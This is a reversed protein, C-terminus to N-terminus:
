VRVIGSECAYGTTNGTTADSPKVGLQYPYNAGTIIRVIYRTQGIASNNNGAAVSAAGAYKGIIKVKDGVKFSQKQEVVEFLQAGIQDVYMGFSGDAFQLYKLKGGDFVEAIVTYVTNKAFKGIVTSNGSAKARKNASAAICRYQKNVSVFKAMTNDVPVTNSAKDAAIKNYGGAKIITPYDVYCLNCDVGGAGNVNGIGWQWMKQSYDYKTAKDPSNTWHALWIDYSKLRDKELYSELWAPNAYVAAYYGALRIETLFAVANDTRQKNTLGPILREDELDYFIPYTINYGKISKLCHQAEARAEDVTQAMAYVYIGVPMGAKICGDLHSYLMDDTKEKYGSRVIAFSVGDTKVKKYDISRQCYSIDIGKTKM